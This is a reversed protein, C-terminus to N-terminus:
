SLDRSRVTGFGIIPEVRSSRQPADEYDSPVGNRTTSSAKGQTKQLPTAERQSAYQAATGSSFCLVTGIVAVAFLERM